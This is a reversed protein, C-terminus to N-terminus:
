ITKKTGMKASMMARNTAAIAGRNTSTLAGGNAGEIKEPPTYTKARPGKDKIETMIESDKYGRVTTRNQNLNVRVQYSESSTAGIKSGSQAKAYASSHFIDEKKDKMVYKLFPNKQIM